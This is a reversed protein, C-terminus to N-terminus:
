SEHDRLTHRASSMNVLKPRDLRRRETPRDTPEHSTNRLSYTDWDGLLLPHSGDACCSSYRIDCWHVHNRPNLGPPRRRLRWSNRAVCWRGLAFWRWTTITSLNGSILSCQICSIHVRAVSTRTAHHTQWESLRDCSQARCFRSLPYLDQNLGM